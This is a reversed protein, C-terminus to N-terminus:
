SPYLKDTTDSKNECLSPRSSSHIYCPLLACKRLKLYPCAQKCASVSCACFHAHRSVEANSEQKKRKLKCPSSQHFTKYITSSVKYILSTIKAQKNRQEPNVIAHKYTQSGRSLNNM